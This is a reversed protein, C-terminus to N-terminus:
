GVGQVRARTGSADSRDRDGCRRPGPERRRRPTARRTRTGGSRPRSRPRSTSTSPRRSRRSARRARARARPGVAQMGGFPGADNDTLPDNFWVTGAKIERMCRVVTELDRTYVNAGLGYRTSNALEIAEDLSAGARDAGGPRLDGRAAPRDRRPAGTVVAPSFFHGRTAAPATAAPSWSPAPRRGRAEVQASSRRASPAGVGDPRRRHAPRAPRRARLTERTTSSSACTTTTCRAGDRLLARGVHVGPRREPLRGLRRGQRRRRHRRGRRRLRHVPGQRGDRPEGAGRARRM